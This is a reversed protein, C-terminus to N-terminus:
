RRPAHRAPPVCLSTVHAAVRRAHAHTSVQIMTSAHAADVKRWQLLLPLMTGLVVSTGVILFLSASIAFADVIDAQFAVVRVFGAVVLLSALAVARAAEDTVIGRTRESADPTVEGTALGRIIRVAAQWCPVRLRCCKARTLELLTM